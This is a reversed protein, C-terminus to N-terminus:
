ASHIMKTLPRSFRSQWLTRFVLLLLIPYIVQMAPAVIAMISTFSMLSMLWMIVLTFLLARKKTLHVFHECLFNAFVLVLAIETTLCTLSVAISSIFGFTPGLSLQALKSVLQEGSLPALVQAHIASSAMLAGYLVALLTVAVLGGQWTKRLALSLDNTNRRIMGVLTSSFFISAILDQTYYGDLLSNFFITRPKEESPLIDNGSLLSSFVIGAISILLIPTLIKGLLEIVRQEKVLSAYVITLFILSFLWLPPSIPVQTFISAHALLICRPGSGLPIWFLLTIFTFINVYRIPLVRDFLRTYLGESPIMALLGLTPLLVATITFGLACIYFYNQYKAGLMLPFILNGSGFFMSFLALGVVMVSPSKEKAM